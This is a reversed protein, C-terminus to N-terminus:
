IEREPVPNLTAASLGTFCNPNEKFKIVTVYKKGRFVHGAKM